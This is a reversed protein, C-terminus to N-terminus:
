VSLDHSGWLYSPSPKYSQILGRPHSRTRLICIQSNTAGFATSEGFVSIACGLEHWWAPSCLLDIKTVHRIQSLYQWITSATLWSNLKFKYDRTCDQWILEKITNGALSLGLYSVRLCVWSSSRSAVHSSVIVYKGYKSRWLSSSRRNCLSRCSSSAPPFMWPSTMTAVRSQLEIRPALSWSHLTLNWCEEIKIWLVFGSLNLDGNHPRWRNLKQRAPMLLTACPSDHYSITEHMVNMAQNCRM